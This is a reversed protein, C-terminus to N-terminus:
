RWRSGLLSKPVVGVFAKVAINIDEIIERLPWEKSRVTQRTYTLHAVEKNVRDKIKQVEDSTKHPKVKVWADSSLFHEAVVDDDKAPTYFFDLLARVHIAFSELLANNIVRLYGVEKEEGSNMKSIRAVSTGRTLIVPDTSSTHTVRKVNYIGVARKELIEALQNVMWIEYYLHDSAKRLEDETYKKSM